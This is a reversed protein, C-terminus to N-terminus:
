DPNEVASMFIESKSKCMLGNKDFEHRKRQKSVTPKYSISENYRVRTKEAQPM